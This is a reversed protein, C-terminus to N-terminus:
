PGRQEVSVPGLQVVHATGARFPSLFVRAIGIVSSPRQVANTSRSVCPYLWTTGLAPEGSEKPSIAVMNSIKRNWGEVARNIDHQPM